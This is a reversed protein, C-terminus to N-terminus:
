LEVKLVGELTNRLGEVNDYNLIYCHETTSMESHGLLDTITRTSVGGRHLDSAFTKRIRHTNFKKVGTLTCLRHLTRDLSRSLITDAGDYALYCSDYNMANHYKLILDYIAAASATLPIERVSYVTKVDEQVRYVLSGCRNGNEDREFYKSETKYIRVLKKDLDFDSFTLSALEGVRLGLFFNLLLCLCASRKEPYVNDVLVGRFLKIKDSDSIAYEKTKETHIKGTDLYRKVLSWNLLKAGGIKLDLAFVMVNNVIQFLRGFEKETISGMSTIVDNLFQIVVNETVEHVPLAVFDSLLYYRNYTCEIRDLSQPKVINMKMLFWKRYVVSFPVPDFCVEDIIGKEMGIEIWENKTM